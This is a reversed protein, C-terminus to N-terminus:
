LDTEPHSRELVHTLVAKFDRLGVKRDIVLLFKTLSLQGEGLIRFASAMAERKYRQKVVAAALSHYGTEGYSWLDEVAPIVLPFLPSLLEQLLDGIFFDEQRPKGVVTAPYIADRRHALQSVEFIP